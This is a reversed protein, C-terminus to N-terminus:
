MERPLLPGQLWRQGLGQSRTPTLGLSRGHSTWASPVQRTGPGSHRCLCSLALWCCATGEGPRVLCLPRVAVMGSVAGTGMSRAPQALLYRNILPDSSQCRIAFQPETHLPPDPLAEQLFHCQLPARSLSEYTHFCCSCCWPCSTPESIGAEEELGAQGEEPDKEVGLGASMGGPLRRPRPSGEMAAPIIRFHHVLNWGARAEQGELGDGRHCIAGRDGCPRKLLRSQLLKAASAPSKHGDGGPEQNRQEKIGEFLM